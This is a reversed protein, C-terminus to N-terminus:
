TSACKRKKSIQVRRLRDKSIAIGPETLMWILTSKRIIREHGNEDYVAVLHSNQDPFEMDLSEEGTQGGHDNFFETVEECNGDIFDVDDDEDDNLDVISHSKFQYSDVNNCEMGFKRADEIAVEKAKNLICIIEDDSPLAYIKTKEERKHSVPFKVQEASLKFYAIQNQVEVRGFMHLIDYLSFNIRTFNVTGMSRLLRFTKECTQSDYITPLFLEPMNRDRLNKMCNILSRANIEIGTYANYTIFNEKLTQSQSTKVHNRWIRLFYVGRYMHFIRDLPSMDFDLYSSTIDSCLELYKITAEAGNVNNQLAMIVRKNVMKEYSRFNQRDFPRIDTTNLGHVSKQVNNVLSRLHTVSAHKSGMKLKISENLLRCRLKGGIHIMDQVYEVDSDPERVIQSVMASLMKPDGDTSRGKIEIGYRFFYIM